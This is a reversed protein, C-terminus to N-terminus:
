FDCLEGAYIGILGLHHGRTVFGLFNRFVLGNSLQRKADERWLKVVCAREGVDVVTRRFPAVSRHCKILVEVVSRRCM